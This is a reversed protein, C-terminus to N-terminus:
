WARLSPDEGPHNSASSASFSDPVETDGSTMPFMVTPTPLLATCLFCVSFLRCGGKRGDKPGKRQAETRSSAAPSGPGQSLLSLERPDQGLGGARDGLAFKEWLLKGVNRTGHKSSAESVPTPQALAADEERSSRGWLSNWVVLQRTGSEGARGQAEQRRPVAGWGRHCDPVQARQRSSPLAPDQRTPPHPSSEAGEGGANLSCVEGSQLQRELAKTRQPWRPSRPGFDRGLMVEM